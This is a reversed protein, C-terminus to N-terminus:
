ETTEGEPDRSSHDRMRRDKMGSDKSRHDRSSYDRETTKREATKAGASKADASRTEATTEGASRMRLRQETSEKVLTYVVATLPIFFIIGPLGLLKGGLLAAILTWLPSLGVSTGVVNPYIFQNEIFQVVTYVVIGTIVQSPAALLTLFAGIVCAAFAGIYPVFAFIGTLFAVIGAYPLRFLSYAIFILTGLIIAELCQGSLFKSYTERSLSAIHRLRHSLATPLYADMLMNVQAQLTSKSLLVYIAIVLAFITSTVGSITTSAANVASDFVFGPIHSWDSGSTLDSFMKPLNSIDIDYGKLVEVWKPWQEKLLPTITKSSAVLEPIVLKVALAVVLGISVFTLTLSVARVFGEGPQVKIKKTLLRILRQFGSMPVNLVFAIILGLVIPFLLHMVQRLFALVGGMNMLLAFLAVGFAILILHQKVNRDM